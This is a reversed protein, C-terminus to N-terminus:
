PALDSFECPSEVPRVQHIHSSTELGVLGSELNAEGRDRLYKDKILICIDLMYCGVVGGFGLGSYRRRTKSKGSSPLSPSTGLRYLWMPCPDLELHFPVVMYRRRFAM